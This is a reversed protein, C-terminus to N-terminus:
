RFAVLFSHCKTSLYKFSDNNNEHALANQTNHLEKQILDYYKTDHIFFETKHDYRILAVPYGLINKNLNKSEGEVMLETEFNFFQLENELTLMHTDVEVTKNIYGKKSIRILYNTNKKLIFEFKHNGKKLVVTEIAAPGILEVVCDQEDNHNSVVGKIHLCSHADYKDRKSANTKPTGGAFCFSVAAILFITLTTKM